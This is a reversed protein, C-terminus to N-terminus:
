EETEGYRKPKQLEAILADAFDVAERACHQVSKYEFGLDSDDAREAQGDDLYIAPLMAKAIEYRRQERDIGDTKETLIEVEDFGLELPDGYSDCKSLTVRAYSAIDIIEGTAKIRAKVTETRNNTNQSSNRSEKQSM